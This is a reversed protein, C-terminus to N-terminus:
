GSSAVWFRRRPLASLESPEGEVEVEDEASFRPSDVCLVASASQIFEMQSTTKLKQDFGEIVV